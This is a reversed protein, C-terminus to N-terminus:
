YLIVSALIECEAALQDEIEGICKFGWLNGRHKTVETTVKLTDGPMFPRRFRANDVGALRIEFPALVNMDKDLKVWPSVAFSSVQAIVELIIVGPTIPTKPFHGTFYPENMTANKVGVVKTGVAILEGNNGVPVKMELIKDVLLFPFRHPLYNMIKLIDYPGYSKTETM